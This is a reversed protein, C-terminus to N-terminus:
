FLFPELGRISRRRRLTLLWAACWGILLLSSPEPVSSVGVARPGQEYAGEQLALVIDATDFEYDANWDGTSWDSNELIGDEYEGAQLVQVLDTTNFEGDLNADGFYTNKVNQVWELRDDFDVDGDLDLDGHGTGSVAISAVDPMLDLVMRGNGQEFGRFDFHVKEFLPTSSGEGLGLGGLSGLLDGMGADNLLDALDGWGGLLSGMWGSSLLNMGFIGDITPHIDVVSMTLNTFVLDIGQDTPVSLEEVLLIPAEITGGVGGIPQTGIAEDRLDGNGNTDLGLDFAMQSSILSLQAGTDLVFNGRQETGEHRMTTRIAPLDVWVPLPGTEGPDFHLPELPVTYRRQSTAPLDNAFTTALFDFDLGGELLDFIDFPDGNGGGGGLGSLNLTTVRENMAPMGIIGFFSCLGPVPCFSTQTSSLIRANELTQIVGDSGGFRVHYEASVDFEASGAVGFEIFTGETRYGQPALESVADDGALISNAGTDLLFTNTLEPGISNGTRPDILEIAVRPQDLALEDAPGLLIYPKGAEVQSAACVLWLTLTVGSLTKQMPKCVGLPEM